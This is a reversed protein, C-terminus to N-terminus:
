LDELEVEYVTESIGQCTAVGTFNGIIKRGCNPCYNESKTLDLGELFVHGCSCVLCSRLVTTKHTTRNDNFYKWKRYKKGEFIDIRNKRQIPCRLCEIVLNGEIDKIGSCGLENFESSDKYRSRVKCIDYIKVPNETAILHMSM